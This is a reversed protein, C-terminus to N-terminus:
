PRAATVGWEAICVADAIGDHPKTRRGPRLDVSPYRTLVRHIAAAKDKKTHALVSAKWQKPAPLALPWGLVTFAGVLVGYSPLLCNLSRVGDTIRGSQAEVAVLDPYGEDEILRLIERMDPFPGAYPLPVTLVPRGSRLVCLGGEKGPDIGAVIM